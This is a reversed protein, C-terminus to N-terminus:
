TEGRAQSPTSASAALAAAAAAAQQHARQKRALEVLRGKNASLVGWGRPVARAGAQQVPPPPPPPPSASAVSLSRAAVPHSTSRGGVSEAAAPTSTSVASEGRRTSAVSARRVPGASVGAEGATVHAVGAAAAAAAAARSQPLLPPNGSDGGGGGGGGGEPLLVARPADTASGKSDRGVSMVSRVTFSLESTPSARTQTQRESGAAAARTDRAGISAFGGSARSPHQPPSPGTRSGGDLGGSAGKLVHPSFSKSLAPVVGSVSASRGRPSLPIDSHRRELRPPAGEGGDGSDGGSRLFAFSKGLLGISQRWASKNAEAAAAEPAAAVAPPVPMAPAEEKVPSAMSSVKFSEALHGFSQELVLDEFGRGGLKELALLAEASVTSFSPARTHAQDPMWLSPPADGEGGGGGSRSGQVPTSSASRDDSSETPPAPHLGQLVRPLMQESSHGSVGPDQQQQPQPQQQQQQQQPQLPTKPQQQQWPDGGGLANWATWPSHGGHTATLPTQGLTRSSQSPHSGLELPQPPFRPSGASGGGGAASTPPESRGAQSTGGGVGVGGGGGGLGRFSRLSGVSAAPKKARLSQLASSFSRNQVSAGGGSVSPAPAPHRGQRAGGGGGSGHLYSGGYESGDVDDGDDSVIVSEAAEINPLPRGRASGSRSRTQQEPYPLQGTPPLQLKSLSVDGSDEASSGASAGSNGRARRGKKVGVGGAPRRWFSKSLFTSARHLARKFTHARRLPTVEPASDDIAVRKGPRHVPTPPANLFNWLERASVIYPMFVSRGFGLVLRGAARILPLLLLFMPRVLRSSAALLLAASVLSGAAITARVTWGAWEWDEFRAVDTGLLRRREQLRRLQRDREVKALAAAAENAERAAAAAHCAQALRYQSAAVLFKRAYVTTLMGRLQERARGGAAAAAAAASAHGDGGARRRRRRPLARRGRPRRRAGGRVFLVEPLRAELALRLSRLLAASRLRHANPVVLLPPAVLPSGALRRRAEIDAAADAFAEVAAPSVEYRTHSRPFLNFFSDLFTRAVVTRRVPVIFTGVSGLLVVADPGANGGRAPSAGGSGGGSAAGPGDGDGASSSPAAEDAADNGCASWGHAACAVVQSYVRWTQQYYESFLSQMLMPREPTGPLSTADAGAGPADSRTGDGTHESPLSTPSAADVMRPVAELCLHVSLPALGREKLLMDDILATGWDACVAGDVRKTDKGDMLADLIEGASSGVLHLRLSVVSDRLQTLKLNTDAACVEDGEILSVNAGGAGAATSESTAPAASAAVPVTRGSLVILLALFLQPPAPM